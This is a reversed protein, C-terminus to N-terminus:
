LSLCEGKWLQEDSVRWQLPLCCAPWHCYVSTVSGTTFHPWVSALGLIATMILVNQWKWWLWWCWTGTNWQDPAVRVRPARDRDCHGTVSSPWASTQVRPWAALFSLYVWIWRGRMHSFVNSMKHNNNILLIVTWLNNDFVNSQSLNFHKSIIEVKIVSLISEQFSKLACM